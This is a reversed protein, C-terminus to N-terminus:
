NKISFIIKYNYKECKIQNNAFQTFYCQLKETVIKQSFTCNQFKIM